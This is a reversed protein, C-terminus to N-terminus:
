FTFCDANEKRGTESYLYLHPRLVVLLMTLVLAVVVAWFRTGTPYETEDVNVDTGDVKELTGRARVNDGKENDVSDNPTNIDVNNSSM